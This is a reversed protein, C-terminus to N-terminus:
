CKIGRVVLNYDDGGVEVDKLGCYEFLEGLSIKTFACKHAYYPNGKAMASGLGYLVDHFSVPMRGDVRYFVDDLDYQRERMLDLLRPVNPVIAYVTGDPKLVHMMGRVISEVEHKYFHELAHSSFVADYQAPDLTHMDRADLVIDPEVEPNIDLTVQEWDKFDVPINTNGGSGVNLVRKM